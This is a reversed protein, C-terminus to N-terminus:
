EKNEPMCNTIRRTVVENRREVTNESKQNNSNKKYQFGKDTNNIMDFETINKMFHRRIRYWFYM